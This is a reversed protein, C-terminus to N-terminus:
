GGHVPSDRNSRLVGTSIRQSSRSDVIMSTGRSVETRGVVTLPMALNAPPDPLVIGFNVALLNFDALGVVGDYNFDGESYTPDDDRGFNAALLNFDLLGVNRDRNADGRLVHFDVVIPSGVAPVGAANAIDGAAVTLRYNGDPLQNTLLLTAENSSENYSLTGVSTPLTALTDVNQLVIDSRGLFASVDQDFQFTVAERQEFEYAQSLIQPAPPLPGPVVEVAFTNADPRLAALVNGSPTLGGQFSDFADAIGGTATIINFVTGLAPDYTGVLDPDFRTSSTAPALDLAGTIQLRGFTSAGSIESRVVPQSGGVFSTNGTISLTSEPSLDIIGANAFPSAGAPDIALDAGDALRIAGRNEALLGLEAIGTGEITVDATLLTPWQFSAGFDLAAADAIRYRGGSLFGGAPDRLNTTGTLQLTGELIEVDGTNDFNSGRTVQGAGTKVVDGANLFAANGGFGFGGVLQLTGQNLVGAGTGSVNFNRTGGTAQLLQLSAGPLNIWTGDTVTLQSAFGGTISDLIVTGANPAAASVNLNAVGVSNVGRSRLTFDPDTLGLLTSNGTAIIESPATTSVLDIMSNRAEFRGTHSGGEYSLTNGDTFVSAGAGITTAGNHSFLDVTVDLLGNTGVSLTGHQNFTDDAGTIFLSRSDAVALTGLNNFTSTGANMNIFRFGGTGTAAEIVAGPENTFTGAGLNLTGAFGGGISDLLISGENRAGPAVALATNGISNDGRVRLTFDSDHVGGLTGASGRYIVQSSASADDLLIDANTVVFSGNNFGGAYDLEGGSLLVTANAGQQIPGNQRFVLDDADLTAGAGIAIEGNNTFSDNGNGDVRLYAGPEVDVDGQNTFTAAGGTMSIFRTGGAGALARVGAGPANTLTANGLALTANFGGGVSDLLITGQNVISAPVNLTAAGVANDGQVRLTFDADALALLSGGSRRYLIESPADAAVLNLDDGEVRFFGDNSGGTYNLVGGDFWVNGAPHTITGAQNFTELTVELTGGAGITLPANNTFTDDAEAGDVNLYSGAAIAISGNNTFSGADGAAQGLLVRRAGGTGAQVDLLGTTGLTVNGAPLALQATWGSGSSTLEITGDISMGDALTATVAGISGNGQVEYTFNADDMALLTTDRKATLEVPADAASLTVASFWVEFYGDHSGGVYDFADADTFLVSGAGQTATTDFTLSAGDIDLGSSDGLAVTGGLNVTGSGTLFLTRSDAVDISGTHDFTVGAALEVVRNGGTGSTALLSGTSNFTGGNVRLVPSWGSGSSTLDITGANTGGESVTLGINGFGGNGQIELTGAVVNLSNVTRNQLVRVTGATDITVDDAAVPLVDGSWNLPDSWSVGDGGGDWSVAALLRRQEMREVVPAVAPRVVSGVVARTGSGGGVDRQLSYGLARRAVRRLQAKVM